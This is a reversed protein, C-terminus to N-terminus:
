GRGNTGGATRTETSNPYEDTNRWDRTKAIAELKALRSQVDDFEAARLGMELVCRAAAVRAAESEGTKLIEALSQVAGTAAEQLLVMARSMANRRTEHLQVLVAECRLWRWGTRASIGAARAADEVSAHSLLATVFLHLKGAKKASHGRSFADNEAM